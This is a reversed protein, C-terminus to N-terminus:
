QAAGQAVAVSLPLEMSLRTGSGPASEITLRGGLLRSRERMGVLGSSHGALAEEVVFGRGDDQVRGGLAQADAWVEVKARAVGAHRAVNTLGEQVIRFATMEVEPPFRRDLDAHQFDVVVGTQREFREIQWLLAPLLGLADLMPPRLDMSLDRVRGILEGVVRKMERRQDAADPGQAGDIMLGLGTLLQGVEDHLERAIAGREVEQIEVLRRSLVELSEQSARVTETLRGREITPAVRDAVVRLLRQDEETFPTRTSAVNLVGITRGEVRLPVGMRARFALGVASWVRAYWDDSGAPPPRLDNVVYPADLTIPQLSELPIRVSVLREYAVGDVARLVLAQADEDVLRVAAFEVRLAARLRALLERLLDDLGLCSLAADTISDLRAREDALREEARMRESQSQVASALSAVFAPAPVSRASDILRGAAVVMPHTRVGARDLTIPPVSRMDYGCVIVVPCRRALASLAAEVSLLSADSPWSTDGWAPVGLLRILSAGRAVARDFEAAYNALMAQASPAGKLRRLRGEAMLAEVDLGREALLDFIRQITEDSGILLGQDRGRLGAELFGVMEAFERANAWLYSIHSHIPVRRGGIGLDV